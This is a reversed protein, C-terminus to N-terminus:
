IAWALQLPLQRKCAPEELGPIRVSFRVPSIEVEKQKSLLKVVPSDNKSFRTVVRRSRNSLGRSLGINKLLMMTWSTNGRVSQCFASRRSSSCKKVCNKESHLSEM